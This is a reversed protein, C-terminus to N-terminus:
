ELSDKRLNARVDEIGRGIEEELLAIEEPSVAQMGNRPLHVPLTITFTTGKGVESNVQITGLHM